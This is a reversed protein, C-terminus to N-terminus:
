KKPNLVPRFDDLIMATIIQRYEPTMENWDMCHISSYVNMREKPICLDCLEACERIVCVSFHNKSKIMKQLSHAVTQVQIQNSVEGCMLGNADLVSDVDNYIAGVSGVKRLEIGLARM